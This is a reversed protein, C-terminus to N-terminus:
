VSIKQLEAKIKEYAIHYSAKLSGVSIGLVSSIDEYKMDEYYRM